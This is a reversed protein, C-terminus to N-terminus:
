KIVRPPTLHRFTGLAPFLIGLLCTPDFVFLLHLFKARARVLRAFPRSTPLPLFAFNKGVTPESEVKKTSPTRFVSPSFRYVLNGAGRRLFM